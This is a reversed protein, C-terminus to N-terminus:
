ESGANKKKEQLTGCQFTVELVNGDQVCAFGVSELNWICCITYLCDCVLNIVLRASLDSKVKERGGCLVM